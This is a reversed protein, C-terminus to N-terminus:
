IPNAALIACLEENRIVTVSYKSIIGLNLYKESFYIVKREEGM